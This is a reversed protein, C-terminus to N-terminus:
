EDNRHGRMADTGERILYSFKNRRQKSLNNQRGKALFPDFLRRFDTLIRIM